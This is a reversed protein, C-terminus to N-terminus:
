LYPLPALPRLIAHEREIKMLALLTLINHTLITKYMRPFAQITPSLFLSLRTGNDVLLSPQETTTELSSATGNVHCSGHYFEIEEHPKCTENRTKDKILKHEKNYTHQPTNALSNHTITLPTQNTEQTLKFAALAGL